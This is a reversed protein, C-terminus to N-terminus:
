LALLTKCKAQTDQLLKPAVPFPHHDDDNAKTQNHFLNDVMEALVKCYELRAQPQETQITDFDSPEMDMRSLCDAVENDEGKIHHIEKPGFEEVLLRWRTM